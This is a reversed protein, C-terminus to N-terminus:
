KRNQNKANEKLFKYIDTLYYLDFGFLGSSKIYGDNRLLHATRKNIKLLKIFESETIEIRYFFKLKYRPRAKAKFKLLNGFILPTNESIEILKRTIYNEDLIKKSYRLKSKEVSKIIHLNIESNFQDSNNSMTAAEKIHYENRLCMTNKVDFYPCNKDPEM